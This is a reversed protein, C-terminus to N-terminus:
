EKGPPPNSLLSSTSIPMIRSSCSSVPACFTRLMWGKPKYWSNRGQCLCCSASTIWM